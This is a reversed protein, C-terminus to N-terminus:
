ALRMPTNGAQRSRRVAGALAPALAVVGAAVAGGVATGPSLLTGAHGAHLLVTTASATAATWTTVLVLQVPLPRMVTTWPLVAAAVAWVLAPALIGASALPAVVHHLTEPLSPMWVSRAAITHPLRVYLDSAGLVEAAVLMLWGSAGLAARQWPGHARGALAPWAGALGIVGLVPAFAGLPWRAPHLPLLLTPLLAAVVFVLTAGPDGQAALGVGAALILAAWGIRPLTVVAVGGILAAVLPPVPSSALVAATLWAAVV